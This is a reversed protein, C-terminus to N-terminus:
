GVDLSTPKRAVNEYYYMSKFNNSNIREVAKYTIIDKEAIEHRYHGFEKRHEEMLIDVIIDINNEIQHWIDIKFRKDKSSDERPPWASIIIEYQARHQYMLTGRDKVFAMWEEKTKPCSKKKREDYQKRFYPLVDYSVLTDRNIDWRLVNFQKTGKNM